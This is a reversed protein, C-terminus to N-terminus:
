EELQKIRLKDDPASVILRVVQENVKSLKCVSEARDVIVPLSTHFHQNLVDIIELGANVQAATNSSKYEVWEGAANQTMPNCVQELGGNIQEKFLQWAVTKFHRNISATIMQAKARIFKDCLAINGELRDLEAAHQKQETTLEDIRERSKEAAQATAKEAQYGELEVRRARELGEAVDLADTDIDGGGSAETQQIDVLLAKGEETEEFPLPTQLKAELKKATAAANQSKLAEASALSEQDAAKTELGEIVTKSCAQGKANIARKREAKHENFEARLEEVQGPPLPQGCTPCTEKGRDWVEAQVAAYEQLLAERQQQLEAVQERCRKAQEAARVAAREHNDRERKAQGIAEYTAANAKATEAEYATRKAKLEARKGALVAQKVEAGRPTKAAAVDALAEAHAATATEIDREIDAIARPEADAASRSLEDIRAPITELEKNLKRREAAAMKKYEEVTYHQDETGPRLLVDPLAELGNQAIVEADTVDGGLEFLVDRRADPKMTQPFYGHILLMKMQETTAGTAAQITAEYDKKKAPVGNIYYDTVHGSFERATSGRKKTWKEYFEKAFTYREGSDKEVEMEARHRLDHAGATKPTFDKEETAPADCFLWTIANAITTKGTGNAGFVDTNKGGFDADLKKVGRFNELRLHLIKM